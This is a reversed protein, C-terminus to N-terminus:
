PEEALVEPLQDEPLTFIVAIPRMQTVVMMGTTDAAHVINGPDISACDSGDTSLPPSARTGLNLKASNIAANDALVTGSFQGASAEQTDYDQQAVVGDALLAKSRALNAKATNLQAQDRALNAKATELAVEYPRPDILALLQGKKVDQGERFYM